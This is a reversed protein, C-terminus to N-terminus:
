RSLEYVADRFKGHKVVKGAKQLVRMSYNLKSQEINTADSIQRKTMKGDALAELIRERFMQSETVPPFKIWFRNTGRDHTFEAKIQEQEAVWRLKRRVDATKESAEFEWYAIQSGRVDFAARLAEAIGNYEDDSLQVKPQLVLGM